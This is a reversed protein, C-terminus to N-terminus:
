ALSEPQVLPWATKNLLDSPWAKKNVVAGGAGTDGSGVLLQIDGGAGGTSRGSTLTLAGSDGACSAGTELVMEGSVGSPGSRETRMSVAGSSTASGLGSPARGRPLGSLAM